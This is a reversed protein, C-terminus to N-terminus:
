PGKSEVADPEAQTGAPGKALGAKWVIVRSTGPKGELVARIWALNEKVPEFFRLFFLEIEGTALRVLHEPNATVILGAVKLGERTNFLLPGGSDGQTFDAQDRHSRVQVTPVDALTTAYTTEEPVMAFQYRNALTEPSDANLIGELTSPSWQLFGTRGRWSGFSVYTHGSHVRGQCLDLKKGRSTGFRGYGVIQGELPAKRRYGTGDYLAAGRIGLQDMRELSDLADFELIALDNRRLTRPHSTDTGAKRSHDQYTELRPHILARVAAVQLTDAQSGPGNRPGFTLTVQQAGKADPPIGDLLVHAATLVFGTRGDRGLGLYVGTGTFSRRPELSTRQIGVVYRYQRGAEHSRQERQAIHGASRGERIVM